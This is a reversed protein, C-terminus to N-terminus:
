RKTRGPYKRACEFGVVSALNGGASFGSIHIRSSPYKDMFFKAASLCDIVGAPFPNEPALRYNISALILPPADQKQGKKNTCDVKSQHKSLRHMLFPSVDRPTGTTFGGGHFYLIIPVSISLKLEELKCTKFQKYGFGRGRFEVNGNIASLPCTIEIEVESEAESEQAHNESSSIIGWDVLITSERPVTVTGGVLFDKTNNQKIWRNWLVCSGWHLCTEFIAFRHRISALIKSAIGESCFYDKQQHSITALRNIPIFLEFVIGLIKDIFFKTPHGFTTYPQTSTREASSNTITSPLILLGTIVIATAAVLATSPDPLEM